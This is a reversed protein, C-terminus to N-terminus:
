EICPARGNDSALLSVNHLGWLLAGDKRRLRIEVNSIAGSMALNELLTTQETSDYLIEASPRGLLENASHYGLMRVLAPNCDLMKGGVEARFVGALNREFLLRYRQESESRALEAQKRATIDSLIGDAFRVGNETHTRFARDHVWIFHGDKCRARFEVDFREGRSFLARYSEGVRQLDDPHITQVWMAEGYNCLEEPSYGFISEVNSSMFITRGDEASTWSVDPLSAVLRRLWEERSRSEEESAALAATRSAVTTELNNNTENLRRLIAYILGSTIAIYFCDKVTGWRMATAMTFSFHEILKDTLFIWVWSFAIYLGAFWTPRGSRLYSRWSQILPQM